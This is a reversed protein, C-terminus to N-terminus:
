RGFRRMVMNLARPSVVRMVVYVLAAMIVIPIVLSLVLGFLGVVLRYILSLALVAAISTAGIAIVLKLPQFM